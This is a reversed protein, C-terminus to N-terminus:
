YASNMRLYTWILFFVFTLHLLLFMLSHFHSRKIKKKPLLPLQNLIKTQLLHRAIDIKQETTLTDFLRLLETDNTNM